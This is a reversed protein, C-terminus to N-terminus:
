RTSQLATRPLHKFEGFLIDLHWSYEDQCKTSEPLQLLSTIVFCRFDNYTQARLHEFGWAELRYFFNRM